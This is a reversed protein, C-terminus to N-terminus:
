VRVEEPYKLKFEEVSQHNMPLFINTGSSTAVFFFMEHSARGLIAPTDYKQGILYQPLPM